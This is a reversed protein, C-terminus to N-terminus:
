IVDWDPNLQIQLLDFCLGWLLFVACGAFSAGNKIDIKLGFEIANKRM